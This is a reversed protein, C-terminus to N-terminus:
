DQNTVETNNFNNVASNDKLNKLYEVLTINQNKINQAHEVGVYRFHWPEYDYGTIHKKGKPYSLVFGYRWANKLLWRGEKTREFASTLFYRNSGSDLDIATGLQHESHGAKAILDIGKRGYRQIYNSYLYDQITHLRFGSVAIIKLNEKLADNFMKLFADAAEKRLCVIGNTYVKYTINVLDPPVYDEPLSNNKAVPFLFYDPFDKNPVPCIINLYYNNLLALTENDVFGTTALNHKKQFDLLAAKTKKGFYGTLKLSNDIENRLIQQLFKVQLNRDGEKLNKNLGYLKIYKYMLFKETAAINSLLLHDNIENFFNIFFIASLFGLFIFGVLFYNKM